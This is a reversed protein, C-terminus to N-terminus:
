RLSRSGAEWIQHKVHYLDLILFVKVPLWACLSRIWEAGDSLVVLLQARDFGRKLMVAWVLMALGLWEGLHSLYSKELICRRQESERACATAEYL